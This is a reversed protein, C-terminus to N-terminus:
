SGDEVEKEFIRIDVAYERVGGRVQAYQWEIDKSADAQGVKKGPVLKEAVADAIWKLSYPLGDHADLKRPSIRTLVVLLPKRDLAPVRLSQHVLMKQKRHRERQVWGASFKNTESYTRIPLRAKAILKM